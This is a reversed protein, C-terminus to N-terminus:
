LFLFKNENGWFRHLNNEDGSTGSTYKIDDKITKELTNEESFLITVKSFTYKISFCLFYKIWCFVKILFADLFVKRLGFCM